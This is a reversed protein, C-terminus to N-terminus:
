FLGFHTNLIDNQSQEWWFGISKQSSQLKEFNKDFGMCLPWSTNAHIGCTNQSQRRRFIIKRIQHCDFSLKLSKMLAHLTDNSKSNGRIKMFYCFGQSRFIFLPRLPKRLEKADRRTLIRHKKESKCPNGVLHQVQNKIPIKDYITYPIRLSAALYHIFTIIVYILDHPLLLIWFVWFLSQFYRAGLKPLIGFKSVLSWLTILRLSDELIERNDDDFQSNPPM